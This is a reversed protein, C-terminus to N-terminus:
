YKTIVLINLIVKSGRKKILFSCHYIYIEKGMCKLPSLLGRMLAMFSSVHLFTWVNCFHYKTKEDRIIKRSNSINPTKNENL